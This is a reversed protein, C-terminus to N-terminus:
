SSQPPLAPNMRMREVVMFGDMEPMHMDLLVVQFPDNDVIADGLRDLAEEGGAAVPPARGM